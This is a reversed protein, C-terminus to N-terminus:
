AVLAVILVQCLVVNKRIKLFIILDMLKYILRMCLSYLQPIQVKQGFLTIMRIQNQKSSEEYSESRKKFMIEDTSFGHHYM